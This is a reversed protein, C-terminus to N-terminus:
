FEFRLGLNGGVSEVRSGKEYAAEGYLSFNNGLKANLGLGVEGRTGSLNARGSETDAKVRVKGDFEHKVNLKLYPEYVPQNEAEHRLGWYVGGSLLSSDYQEVRSAIDNLRASFGNITTHNYEIRPELMMSWTDDMKWTWQKGAELSFAWARTNKDYSDSEAGALGSRVTTELNLWHHRATADIFWGSDHLFLAYLGLSQGTIDSDMRRDNASAFSAGAVAGLYVKAPIDLSLQHDYGFELGYTNVKTSGFADLVSHGAYQRFWLGNAPTHGETERYLQSLRLDGLRKNLTNSSKEVVNGVAAMSSGMGSFLTDRMVPDLGSRILTLLWIDQLLANNWNAEANYVFGGLTYRTNSLTYIANRTTANTQDILEINEVGDGM